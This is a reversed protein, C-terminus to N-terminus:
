LLEGTETDVPGATSILQKRLESEVEVKVIKRVKGMARRFYHRPELGWTAIHEQVAFAIARAEEDDVGFKRRAWDELPQRPPRFPRAGNEMVAAHPADVSLRGGRPLDTAGVSRALEGTNVPAYNMETPQSISEVVVSVGRHAASKLGRIILKEMFPTLNGLEKVFQKFTLTKAM